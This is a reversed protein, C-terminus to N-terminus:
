KEMSYYVISSAPVFYAYFVLIKNLVLVTLFFFLVFLLKSATMNLIASVDSSIVNEIARVSRRRHDVNWWRRRECDNEYDCDHWRLPSKGGARRRDLWWYWVFHYQALKRFTHLFVPSRSPLLLSGFWCFDFKLHDFSFYISLLFKSGAKSQKRQKWSCPRRGLQM